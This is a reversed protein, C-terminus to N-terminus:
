FKFNNVMLLLYIKFFISSLNLVLQTWQLALEIGTMLDEWSKLSIIFEIEKESVNFVCM